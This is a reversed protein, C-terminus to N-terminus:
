FLRIINQILLIMTQCRMVILIGKDHLYKRSLILTQSIDNIHELSHWFTIANVPKSVSELKDYVKINKAILQKQVSPIIADFSGYVEFGRKKQLCFFSAEEM